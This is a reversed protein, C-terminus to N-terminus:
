FAVDHIDSQSRFAGNFLTNLIRGFMQSPVKLSFIKHECFLEMVSTQFPGLCTETFLNRVVKAALGVKAFGLRGNWKLEYQDTSFCAERVGGPCIVM